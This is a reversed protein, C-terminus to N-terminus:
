KVAGEDAPRAQDDPYFSNPFGVSGAPAPLKDLPPPLTIYGPHGAGVLAKVANLVAVHQAEVGMISATTDRASKDSLSTVFAVYTEAAGMELTIALDVLPGPGTLKPKAKNVVDLLVPDPATQPTGKLATTAAGFAQMHDMHQQKTKTAFTQVVQPLSGAFPLKLAADYTAIALIEISTATQLMQVDATQDAFAPRAMLALLAGGVGAAALARGGGIGRTLLERRQSALLRDADPDTGAERGVEVMERLSDRTAHMADHHLDHSEEVLTGIAHEDVSMDDVGM